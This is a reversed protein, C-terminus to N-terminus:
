ALESLTLCLLHKIRFQCFGVMRIDTGYAVAPSKPHTHSEEPVNDCLDDAAAVIPDTPITDCLDYGMTTAASSKHTAMGVSGM